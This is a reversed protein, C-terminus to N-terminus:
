MSNMHFTWREKATCTSTHPPLRHPNQKLIYRVRHALKALRRAKGDGHQQRQREADACVRGDERQHIGDQQMIQRHGVGLGEDADAVVIVAADVAAPV